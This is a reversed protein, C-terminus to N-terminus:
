NGNQKQRNMENVARIIENHLQQLERAEDESLDRHDASPFSMKQNWRERLKEKKDAADAKEEWRKDVAAFVEEANTSEMFTEAVDFQEAGPLEMGEIMRLKQDLRMEKYRRGNPRFDNHLLYVKEKDTMKKWESTSYHTVNEVKAVPAPAGCGALLVILILTKNM